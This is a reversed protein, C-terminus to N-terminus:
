TSEYGDRFVERAEQEIDALARKPRNSFSVVPGPSPSAAPPFGRREFNAPTMVRLSAEHAAVVPDQHTSAQIQPSPSRTSKMARRSRTRAGSNSSLPNNWLDVQQISPVASLAAVDKEHAFCNDVLSIFLLQPFRGPASCSAPVCVLKNSSLNLEQLSPALSLYSFSEEHHLGNKELSLIRLQPLAHWRNPIRSIRNFSLDLVVLSKINFLPLLGDAKIINFSLNLVELFKFASSPHHLSGIGNCYLNLMKLSPLVAVDAFNINNDGLDVSEICDTHFDNLVFGSAGLGVCVSSVVNGHEDLHGSEELMSPTILVHSASHRLLNSHSAVSGPLHPKTKEHGAHILPLKTAKHHQSPM